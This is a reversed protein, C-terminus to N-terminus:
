LQRNIDRSITTGFCFKATPTLLFFFNRMAISIGNLNQFVELEHLHMSSRSAIKGKRGVETVVQVNCHWALTRKCM